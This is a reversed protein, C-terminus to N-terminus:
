SLRGFFRGMRGLRAGATTDAGFIEVGQQAATAIEGHAGPDAQWAGPGVDDDIVYRERRTGRAPNPALREWAELSAIPSPLRAGRGAMGSDAHPGRPDAQRRAGACRRAKREDVTCQLAEASTTANM